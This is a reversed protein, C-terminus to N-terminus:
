PSRFVIWEGSAIIRRGRNAGVVWARRIHPVIKSLLVDEPGVIQKASGIERGAVVEPEGRDFAPISYLDFIEDLFKAPDVSGSKSAMVEGLEITM